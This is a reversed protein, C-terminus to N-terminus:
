KQIGTETKYQFLRLATVDLLVILILTEVKIYGAIFGIAAIYNIVMNTLVSIKSMKNEKIDIMLIPDLKM